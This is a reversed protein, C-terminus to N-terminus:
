VTVKRILRRLIFAPKLLSFRYLLYKNRNPQNAMEKLSPSLTNVVNESEKLIDSYVSDLGFKYLTAIIHIMGNVFYSDALRQDEPQLFKLTIKSHHVMKYFLLMDQFKIESWSGTTSNPNDMYYYYYDQNMALVQNSTLLLRYLLGLDEYYKGVPFKLNNDNFLSAKFIKDTVFGTVLGHNMMELFSEYGSMEKIDIKSNQKILDLESKVFKIGFCLIDADNSQLTSMTKSFCSSDLWDDSDLFMIYKGKALEIGKNRAESAGGNVKSIVRIFDYSQAYENCVSLSNDTSGDDVLIIEYNDYVQQLVSEICRKLYKEVNYVPIIVSLFPNCM